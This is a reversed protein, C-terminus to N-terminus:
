VKVEEDQGGELEQAADLEVSEHSRSQMLKLSGKLSLNSKIYQFAKWLTSEDYMAFQLPRIILSVDWVYGLWRRYMILTYVSTLFPALDITIYPFLAVGDLRMALLFLGISSQLFLILCMLAFTPRKIYVVPLAIFKAVIFSIAVAVWPVGLAPQLLCLVGAIVLMLIPATYISHQQFIICCGATYFENLGEYFANIRIVLLVSAVALPPFLLFGPSIFLAAAIGLPFFIVILAMCLETLYAYSGKAPLLRIDREYVM